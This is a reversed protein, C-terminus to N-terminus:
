RRSPTSRSSETDENEADTDTNAAAANGAHRWADFCDNGCFYLVYDTGEHSRAVSHPIERLCLECAVTAPAPADRSPTPRHPRDRNM